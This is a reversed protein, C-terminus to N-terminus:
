VPLEEEPGQPSEAEPPTEDFNDSGSIPSGPTVTLKKEGNKKGLIM